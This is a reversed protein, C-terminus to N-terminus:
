RLEHLDHGEIHISVIGRTEPIVAAVRMRHRTANRLPTIVRHELVQAFVMTYLLAWWVQLVRYGAVDPGALQHKFSLAVAVYVLLHVGHWREWSLRKRAARISLVAVIVFLVTAVTAAVLGPLSMLEWLALWLPEGRSDAWAETAGGSM